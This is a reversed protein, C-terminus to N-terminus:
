TVFLPLLLFFVELDCYLTLPKDDQGKPEYSYLNKGEKVTNKRELEQENEQQETERQNM